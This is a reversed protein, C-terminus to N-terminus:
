GVITPFEVGRSKGTGSGPRRAPRPFCRALAAAHDPRSDGRRPYRRPPWTARAAELGRAPPRRRRRRLFAVEAQWWQWVRSEARYRRARERVLGATGLVRAAAALARGGVARYRVPDGSRKGSAPPAARLLTLEWLAATWRTVTRVAYGTRRCVQAVTLPGPHERLVQVVRAAHHGLGGFRGPVFVESRGLALRQELLASWGHFGPPPTGQTGGQAPATAGPHAAAVPLLRWRSAPGERRCAAIWGDAALRHLARAMTSRGHGTALAARRVDLDLEATGACVALLCLLDLLARDAPGSPTAV